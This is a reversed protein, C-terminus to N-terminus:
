RETTGNGEGRVMWSWCVVAARRPAAEHRATRPLQGTAVATLAAACTGDGRLWGPHGLAGPRRSGPPTPGGPPHDGPRSSTRVDALGTTAGDAKDPGATLVDTWGTSRIDLTWADLTWADPTWGDPTWGDPTWTDPRGPRQHGRRQRRATRASSGSHSPTAPREPRVCRTSTGRPGRAAHDGSSMPGSPSPHHPTPRPQTAHPHGLAGRGADRSHCREGSPRGRVSDLALHRGAPPPGPRLLHEDAGRPMRPCAAAIPRSWATTVVSRPRQAPPSGPNDLKPPGM